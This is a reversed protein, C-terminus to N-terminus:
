HGVLIGFFSQDSIVTVKNVGTVELHYIIYRM